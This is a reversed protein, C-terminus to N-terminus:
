TVSSLSDNLNLPYKGLWAAADVAGMVPSPPLIPFVSFSVAEARCPSVGPFLQLWPLGVQFGTSIFSSFPFQDIDPPLTLSTQAPVEPPLAETIKQVLTHQRGPSLVLLCGLFAWTLCGARTGGGARVMPGWGWTSPASCHARPSGLADFAPIM